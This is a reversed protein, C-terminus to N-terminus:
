CCPMWPVWRHAAPDFVVDYLSEGDPYGCAPALAGKPQAARLAEEVRPRTHEDVTGGLSWVLAHLTLGELKKGFEAAPV